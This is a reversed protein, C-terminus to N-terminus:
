RRRRSRWSCSRDRRPPSFPGRAAGQIEEVSTADAAVRSVRRRDLRHYAGRGDNHCGSHKHFNTCICFNGKDAVLSVRRARSSRGGSMRERFFSIGHMRTSRKRGTGFGRGPNARPEARGRSRRRASHRRRCRCCRTRDEPRRRCRSRARCRRCARRARSAPCSRWVRFAAARGSGRGSGRMVERRLKRRPVAVVPMAAAM